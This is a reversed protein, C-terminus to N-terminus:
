WEWSSLSFLNKYRSFRVKQCPSEERWSYLRSIWHCGRRKNAHIWNYSHPCHSSSSFFSLSHTFLSSFIALSHFVCRLTPPRTWEVAPRGAHPLYLQNISQSAAAKDGPRSKTTWSCPTLQNNAKTQWQEGQLQQAPRRPMCIQQQWPSHHGRCNITSAALRCAYAIIRTLWAKSCFCVWLRPRVVIYKNKM